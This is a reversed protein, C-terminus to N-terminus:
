SHVAPDYWQLADLLKNVEKLPLRDLQMPKRLEFYRQRMVLFCVPDHYKRDLLVQWKEMPKKCRACVSM